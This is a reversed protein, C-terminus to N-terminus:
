TSGPGHIEPGGWMVVCTRANEICTETWMLVSSLIHALVMTNCKGYFERLLDINACNSHQAIKPMSCIFIFICCGKDHKNHAQMSILWPRTNSHQIPSLCICVSHSLAMSSAETFPNWVWGELTFGVQAGSTPQHPDWQLAKICLCANCYTHMIHIPRMSLSVCVHM